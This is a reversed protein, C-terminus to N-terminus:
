LNRYSAGLFRDPFLLLRPLLPYPGAIGFTHDPPVGNVVICM